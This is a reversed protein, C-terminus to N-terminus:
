EKAKQMLEYAINQLKIEEWRNYDKMILYAIAQSINDQNLIQGLFQNALYEVKEQDNPFFTNLIKITKEKSLRVTLPNRKLKEERKLRSEEVPPALRFSVDEISTISTNSGNLKPSQIPPLLKHSRELEAASLQITFLPLFISFKQM